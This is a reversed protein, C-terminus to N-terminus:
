NQLLYYNFLEAISQGQFDTNEQGNDTVSVVKYYDQLSPVELQLDAVFDAASKFSIERKEQGDLYKIKFM